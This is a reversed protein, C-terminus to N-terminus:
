TINRAMSGQHSSLNSSKTAAQIKTPWIAHEKSSFEKRNQLGLLCLTQDFMKCNISNKEPPIAWKLLGALSGALSSCFTFYVIEHTKDRQTLDRWFMLWKCFFGLSFIRYPIHMQFKEKTSTCFHLSWTSHVYFAKIIFMHLLQYQIQERM